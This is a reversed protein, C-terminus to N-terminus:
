EYESVVMSVKYHEGPEPYVHENYEYADGHGRLGWYITYRSWNGYDKHCKAQVDLTEGVSVNYYTRGLRTDTLQWAHEDVVVVRLMDHADNTLAFTAENTPGEDENDTAAFILLLLQLFAIPLFWFHDDDSMCDGSGTGMVVCASRCADPNTANM